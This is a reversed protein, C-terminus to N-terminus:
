RLGEDGAFRRTTVFGGITSNALIDRQYRAVAFQAQEAHGAATPAVALGPAADGTALLAYTNRGSKATFKAGWDPDVIQRTELFNL